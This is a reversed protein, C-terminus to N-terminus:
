NNESMKRKPKTKVDEVILDENVNENTRLNKITKRFEEDNSM